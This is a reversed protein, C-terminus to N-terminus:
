ASLVGKVLSATPVPKSAGLTVYRPSHAPADSPTMPPASIELGSLVAGSRVDRNFSPPWSCLLGQRSIVASYFDTAKLQTQEHKIYLARTLACDYSQAKVPANDQKMLLRLVTSPICSWSFTPSSM